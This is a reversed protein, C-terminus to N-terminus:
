PCANADGGGDLRLAGGGSTVFSVVSYAAMASTKPNGPLSKAEVEYRITAAIGDADLRHVNRELHPDAVLAVQTRDFGVGALAITAAVNANQPFLRVADRAPGEFFTTASAISALDVREAAPTGLWARPPKRGTYRVTSLGAARSAQLADLAGIAGCLAYLARGSDRAAALLSDLLAEDVLAATSVLALDRGSRLVAVGHRAVAGVGATEVVLGIRPDLDGVDLVAPIGYPPKREGRVVVGGVHVADQANLARLVTEGIAGCGILGIRAGIASM